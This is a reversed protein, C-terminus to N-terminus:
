WPIEMQKERPRNHRAGYSITYDGITGSFTDLNMWRGSQGFDLTDMAKEFDVVKLLVAGDKGEKAVGTCVGIWERREGNRKINWGNVAKGKIGTYFNKVERGLSDSM